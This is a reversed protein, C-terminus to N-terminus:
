GIGLCCDIVLLGDFHHLGDGRRPLFQSFVQVRPAQDGMFSTLIGLGLGEVLPGQADALLGEPGGV